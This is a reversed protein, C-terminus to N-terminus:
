RFSWLIALIVKAGLGVKQGSFQVMSSKSMGLKSVVGNKATKNTKPRTAVWKPIPDDMWAPYASTRTTLTM